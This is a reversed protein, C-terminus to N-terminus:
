WINNIIFDNLFLYNEVQTLSSLIVVMFIIM